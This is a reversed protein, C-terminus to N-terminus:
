SHSSCCIRKSCTVQFCAATARLRHKGTKETLSWFLYLSAALRSFSARAMLSFVRPRSWGATLVHVTRQLVATRAPYLTSPEKPWPGSFYCKQAGVTYFPISNSKLWMQIFIFFLPNTFMPCCSWTMWLHLCFGPAMSGEEVTGSLVSLHQGYLEAYFRHCRAAGPTVNMWIQFTYPHVPVWM